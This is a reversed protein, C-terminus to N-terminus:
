PVVKLKNAKSIPFWDLKLSKKKQSRQPKLLRLEIALKRKHSNSIGHLRLKQVIALGYFLYFYM